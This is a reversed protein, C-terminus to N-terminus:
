LLSQFLIAFLRTSIVNVDRNLFFLTVGRVSYFELLFCLIINKLLMNRYNYKFMTISINGAVHLEYSCM